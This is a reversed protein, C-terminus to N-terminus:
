VIVVGVLEKLEESKSSNSQGASFVMIVMFSICPFGKLM